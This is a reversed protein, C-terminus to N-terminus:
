TDQRWNGAGAARVVSNANYIWKNKWSKPYGQWDTYPDWEEGSVTPLLLEWPKLIFQCRNDNGSSRTRDQAM